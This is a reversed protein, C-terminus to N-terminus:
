RCPPDAEWFIVLARRQGDALRHPRVMLYVPHSAGNFRVPVPPSAVAKEEAFAWLLAAGLEAQLEPRVLNRVDLTPTGGPQLLYRGAGASLHLVTHNGDILVSPPAVAELLLRHEDGAPQASHAAVPAVPPLHGARPLLPLTPLIPGTVSPSRRQYLRQRNDVVDFFETAGEATEANGLFLYGGARLAYAFTEFVRAQVAPQLYILLNRCVVLDLKSFPPAQLLNHHTFLVRERVEPRVRYHSNEPTFFRALRAASVAAAIAAPYVGERAVDLAPQSLDSAFVQIAPPAVLTDAYELLLMALSYAEEGTACGVVWVRVTDDRGKGAFLQPLVTSELTAWAAPDRFFETVNILLDRFLAETEASDQRLRHLYAALTPPQTLQLRRAIRRWLTAPKYGSFDHGTRVRVQALIQLLTQSDTEALADAGVPLHLTADIRKAAVLQTALEAVPAVLDALGTAIASRPMSEYEAEEPAQVLVLGGQEKIAQLGVAGDSGSGSLIIAAGDGQAAALSRFFTDIPLPPSGGQEGEVLDLANETVVLQKAPPVVYVCNPQLEVRETVQTVPMSTYPQLLDALHSEATPALHVVVVFTLGSAPPLAQFFTRLAALGGASAGLGIVSLRQPRNPAPSPLPVADDAGPFDENPHTAM